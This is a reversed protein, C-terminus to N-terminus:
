WYRSRGRRISPVTNGVLRTTAKATAATTVASSISKRRPVSVPVATRASICSGTPARSTPTRTGRIWASHKPRPAASAATLPESSLM